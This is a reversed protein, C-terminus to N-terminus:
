EMKAGCNPCYPTKTLTQYTCESCSWVPKGAIERDTEWTGRRVPAVDAAPVAKIDAYETCHVNADECMGKESCYECISKLADDRSIYEM